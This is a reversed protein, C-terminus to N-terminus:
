GTSRAHNMALGLSSQAAEIYNAARRLRNASDRFREMEAHWTHATKVFEVFEDTAWEPRDARVWSSASLDSSLNGFGGWQRRTFQVIRATGADDVSLVLACVDSRVIAPYSLWDGTAAPMRDVPHVIGEALFGEFLNRPLRIEDRVMHEGDVRWIQRNVESYVLAYEGGDVMEDFSAVAM